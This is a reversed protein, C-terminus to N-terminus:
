KAGCEEKEGCPQTLTLSLVSHSVLSSVHDVQDGDVTGDRLDTGRKARQLPCPKARGEGCLLVSFDLSTGRWAAPCEDGPEDREECCSVRRWARRVGCLLVSTELSTGRWVVPCQLGPEDREVCCSVRRWAPRVGCLLVSTELGTESHIGGPHTSSGLEM